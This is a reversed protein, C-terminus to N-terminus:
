LAEAVLTELPMVTLTGCENFIKYCNPCATVLIDAGDEKAGQIRREAMKVSLDHNTLYM